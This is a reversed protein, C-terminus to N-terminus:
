QQKFRFVGLHVGVTTVPLSGVGLKKLPLQIYPEVRVLVSKGVNKEYGISINLSAAAYLSQNNYTGTINNQAGNLLTKYQNYEKSMLYTSIGAAAYLHGSAPSNSLNYKLTLPLEFVSFSGKLSVVKMGVPMTSTIKSMSFYQGATYYYKQEFLLGTEVSLKKTFRYGAILGVDYGPKQPGQKKVRSLSVGAVAGLYFRSDPQNNKVNKKNTSIAAVDKAANIDGAHEKLKSLSVTGSLIANHTQIVEADYRNNKQTNLTAISKVPRFQKLAETQAAVSEEDSDNTLLASLIKVPKSVIFAAAAVSRKSVLEGKLTPKSKAPLHKNAAPITQLSKVTADNLPIALNKENDAFGTNNKFIYRSLITGFLFFALLLIILISYKKIGNKKDPGSPLAPMELLMPKIKDWGTADSKLPFAGAAKRFLEDMNDDIDQM